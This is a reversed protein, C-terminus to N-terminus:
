PKAQHCHALVSRLENMLMGAVARERAVAEEQAQMALREARALARQEGDMGERREEPGIYLEFVQPSSEEQEIEPTEETEHVADHEAGRVILSPSIGAAAKSEANGNDEGRAGVCAQALRVANKATGVGVIATSLAAEVSDM